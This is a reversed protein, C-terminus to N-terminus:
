PGEFRLEGFATHRRAFAALATSRRVLTVAAFSLTAEVLFVPLYAAAWIAWDRVPFADNSVGLWFAVMAAVGAYYTIDLRIVRAYTFRDGLAQEFLRKGFTYHLALLPLGLSLINVGLHAVDKPEILCQLALALAFGVITAPLGAFLYATTAGILHLESPGVSMHWAQMLVAVGIGVVAVRPLLTPRRLLAPAQSVVLAVAAANAAVLRAPEIIGIEIHM